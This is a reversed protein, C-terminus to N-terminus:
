AHTSAHSAFSSGSTVPAGLSRSNSNMNNQHYKFQGVLRQLDGAMRSLESAAQMSNNAGETTSQTADAVSTINQAIEASGKAAEAVNRGMENATATQEEVASAIPNSIDNIRNIVESIEQIATIAGNTDAQIAEIKHSIDETARATEKALEKVENAVVAFGKGAEGARAAEITANLALLNTQEAISTIVKVVKGIEMSSDGLKSITKNTESAISVAQRSVNAADSANKAIERIASNLEDVGTTVVRVNVNVEETAASVITAQTATETANASMQASVASLEESAGALATANEGISAISNSLNCFFSSLSTGLQGVPDTGSVTIQQTLDGGAAASVVNLISDVKRRLDINANETATIDTAIKVVKFVRGVEDRVPAYVAQIYVTSGNKAIRKFVGQQARGDRLDNWFQVYEPSTALTAECFIRHHKGAIEDKRYGLTNLFNDNANQINGNTDFEIFAYASDIAALVGRANQREIEADTIDYRVGLYKRPKGDPGLIPAVVADVYYPTGDKKRNKIVGRFMKGKGITAWMEKFVEKPMDPHRTLSHPQGVAEERSYQSVECYKDNCAIIDGRLNAESVISTMNMIDVRVRLEEVEELLANRETADVGSFFVKSLGKSQDQLPNFTGQLWITKGDKGVCQYDGSQFVGSQLSRWLGAYEEKNRFKPHALAAFDKQLLEDLSYGFLAVFNSNASLIKGQESFEALAQSLDLAHLKNCTEVLQSEKSGTLARLSLGAISVVGVSVFGIILLLWSGSAAMQEGKAQDDNMKATVKAVLDEVATQHDKFLANIKNTAVSAAERDKNKFAPILESEISQIIEQATSKVEGRLCTKLEGDPLRKEWTAISNEFETKFKGFRQVAVNRVKEDPSYLLQSSLYNEVVYLLPPLCDALLDKDTVIENYQTGGVRIKDITRYSSFGFIAFGLLFAVLLWSVQNKLRLSRFKNVLSQM